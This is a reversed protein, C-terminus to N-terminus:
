EEATHALQGPLQPTLVDPDGPTEQVSPRQRLHSTGTLLPNELAGRWGLAMVTKKKGLLTM